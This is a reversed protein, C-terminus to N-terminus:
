RNHIHVDFEKNLGWIQFIGENIFLFIKKRSVQKSKSPVIAINIPYFECTIDAIVHDM